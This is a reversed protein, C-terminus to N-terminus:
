HAKIWAAIDAIPQLDVHGATAYEAPTGPGSGAVFLHNLAPYHHIAVRNDKGFAAQWGAWDPATVQFDRDGQLIALPLKQSKAVAVPDYVRLDRWYSAPLDNLLKTTAPVEAGFTKLKGIMGKLQALQEAEKADIGDDQKALFTMQDYVVDELHRAPAAMLVMGALGQARQAIRPAMMAGQSHGVIYIRRPDIGPQIKLFAVAAVADDTTENDVTYAAAFEMPHVKTRKDYRLSAIGHDALGEALDLFVRTGGVTENRDNPGSGHVFVVAAFPGKGKPLLLTGPLDSHNAPGFRLDHAPLDSRTVAPPPPAPRVLFGAVKGAPNIAISAELAAHEFTLPINVVTMSDLHEMRATGRHGFKGFQQPLATWVAKLKDASVANAMAPSFRASVADFRGADLEDLMANAAAAPDSAQSANAAPEGAAIAPLASMVSASLLVATALITMCHTKM